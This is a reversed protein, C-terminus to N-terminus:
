SRDVDEGLVQRMQVGELLLIELVVDGVAAEHVIQAGLAQAAHDHRLMM